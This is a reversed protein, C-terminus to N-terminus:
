VRVPLYLRASRARGDRIRALVRVQLVEGPALELGHAYPLDIGWGPEARTWGAEAGSGAGWSGARVGDGGVQVIEVAISSPDIELAESGAHVLRASTEDAVLELAAVPQAPVVDRLFTRARELLPAWAPPPDENSGILLSAGDVDLTETAGHRPTPVDADGAGAAKRADAEFASRAADDLRGAFRGVRAGAVTRRATWAGDPGIELSEDDGPARGGARSFQVLAARGETM